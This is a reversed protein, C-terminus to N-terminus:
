LINILHSSFIVSVKALTERIDAKLHDHEVELAEKIIKLDDSEKTLSKIEERSEQLKETLRLRETEISVLATSDKATSQEKLLELENITEQSESVVKM